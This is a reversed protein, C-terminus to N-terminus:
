DIEEDKSSIAAARPLVSIQKLERELKKRAEFLDTTRQLNLWFEPTTGLARALRLAMEATVSRRGNVLQNVTFRSVHLARALEDQTIEYHTALLDRLVEGVSPPQRADLAATM